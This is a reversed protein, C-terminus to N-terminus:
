VVSKRDQAIDERVSFDLIEKYLSVDKSTINDNHEANYETAYLDKLYTLIEDTTKLSDVTEEIEDKQSQSMEEETVKLSDRFKNTENSAESTIENGSTGAPLLQQNKQFQMGALFASISLAGAAIRLKLRNFKRKNERMLKKQENIYIKRKQEASPEEHYKNRFRKIAELTNKKVKNEMYRKIPGINKQKKKNKDM